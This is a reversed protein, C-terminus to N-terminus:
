ILMTIEEVVVGSEVLDDRQVVVVGSEVVGIEVVDGKQVVVLDVVAIEVVVGRQVVVVGSEVVDGRQMVVMAIEKAVEMQSEVVVGCKVAVVCEVVLYSNEKCVVRWCWM